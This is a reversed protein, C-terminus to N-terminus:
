SAVAQQWAECVQEVLRARPALADLRLADPLQNRFWTLQRRAYQRTQRRMEFLAEDVSMEGRIVRTMERYGTGTMGPAKEDYGKHLLDRVEDLFGREMMASVRADIRRDLEDREMDLVVVLCATGPADAEGQRHWESLRRGSLLAVELTRTLRQPGGAIATEARAPDVRRVWAELEDRSRALLWSRLADRRQEDLEPERFMPHTLARLFFGTGGVLMPVHQRAEIEDIWARALRAWQGASFAAEPPVLDLGYHPIGGREEPRVKDTGIDMGTYIQRSDMSIIEAHLARAIEVSLATKGSTTPGTVALARPRM